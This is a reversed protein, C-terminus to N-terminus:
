FDDRCPLEYKIELATLHPRINCCIALSADLYYIAYITSYLNDAKIGQKIQKSMDLCNLGTSRLRSFHMGNEIRM